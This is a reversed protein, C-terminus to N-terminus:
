VSLMIAAENFLKSWGTVESVVARELQKEIIKDYEVLSGGKEYVEELAAKPDLAIIKGAPMADCKKPPEPMAPGNKDKFESLSRYSVRMAKPAIMLSPEFYRFEETLNVIDEYKLTGATGASISAIPNSNGDGNILTDIALAVKDRAMNRGIQKMTVLFVNMKMRRVAEYTAEIEYGIKSLKIAKDKFAIKVKPFSSKEAVRSASAKSNDVDVEASKYLDGDIGTSTATIDKLNAFSALESDLGTRVAENITEVFLIKNDETKYFDEVLAAHSGSLALGRAALQQALPSFQEAHERSFKEHKAILESLTLRKEKAQAFMEKSLPIKEFTPM